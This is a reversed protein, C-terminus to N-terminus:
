PPGRPIFREENPQQVTEEVAIYSLIVGHYLFDDFLMAHLLPGSCLIVQGVPQAFRWLFADSGDVIQAGLIISVCGSKLSNRANNLARCTSYKITPPYASANWPAGRKVPIQLNEHFRIGDIGLANQM